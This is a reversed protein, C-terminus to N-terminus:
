WMKCCDSGDDFLYFDSFGEEAMWEEYNNGRICNNNDGLAPFYKPPNTNVANPNAPLWPPYAANSPHGWVALSDYACTSSGAFNDECCAQATRYIEHENM